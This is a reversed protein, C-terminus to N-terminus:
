TGDALHQFRQVGILPVYKRGTISDTKPKFIRIIPHDM